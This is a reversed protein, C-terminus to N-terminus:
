LGVQMFAEPFCGMRKLALIRNLLDIENAKFVGGERFPQEIRGQGIEVIAMDINRM